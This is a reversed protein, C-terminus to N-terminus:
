RPAGPTGDYSPLKRNADEVPVQLANAFRAVCTYWAFTLVLEVLAGEDFHEALAAWTGDTVAADVALEDAVALVARQRPSFSESDRWDALAGLQDSSVDGARAPRWHSKWVYDSGSLQAVRMVGLERLGRDVDADDRLRWGFDIWTELMRPANGLVRYINPIGGVSETVREYIAHLQEDDTDDGPLSVRTM